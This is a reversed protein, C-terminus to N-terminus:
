GNAHKLKLARKIARAVIEYCDHDLWYFMALGERDEGNGWVQGILAGRQDKSSTSAKAAKGVESFLPKLQKRQAASLKITVVKESM